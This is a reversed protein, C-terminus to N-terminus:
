ESKPQEEVPEVPVECSIQAEQKAKEQAANIQDELHGLHKLFAFAMEKASTIPTDSDMYFRCTKGSVQHEFQAILKIM